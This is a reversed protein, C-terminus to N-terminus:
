FRKSSASAVKLSESFLLGFSACVSKLRPTTINCPFFSGCPASWYQCCSTSVFGFWGWAANTFSCILFILSCVDLGHLRFDLGPETLNEILGRNNSIVGFEKNVLAVA